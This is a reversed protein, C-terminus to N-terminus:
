HLQQGKHLSEQKIYVTVTDEYYNYLKILPVYKQPYSSLHSKRENAMVNIAATTATMDGSETGRKSPLPLERGILKDKIVDFDKTDKWRVDETLQHAEVLYDCGIHGREEVKDSNRYFSIVLPDGGKPPTVSIQSFRHSNLLVIEATEPSVTRSQLM